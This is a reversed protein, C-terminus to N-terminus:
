HNRCRRHLTLWLPLLLTPSLLQSLSPCPLSSFTYLARIVACTDIHITLQYHIRPHVPGDGLGRARDVKGETGIVGDDILYQKERRRKRRRRGDKEKKTDQQNTENLIILVSPICCCLQIPGVRTLGLLDNRLALEEARLQKNNIQLCSLYM